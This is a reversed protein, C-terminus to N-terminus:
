QVDLLTPLRAIAQELNADEANCRSNWMALSLPEHLTDGQEPKRPANLTYTQSSLSAPVLSDVEDDSSEPQESPNLEVLLPPQALPESLLWRVFIDLWEKTLNRFDFFESYRM